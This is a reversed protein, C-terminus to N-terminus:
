AIREEFWITAAARDVAGAAVSEVFTIAELADFQLSVCQSRSINASDGLGHAQEWGRLCPKQGDRILLEGGAGFPPLNM